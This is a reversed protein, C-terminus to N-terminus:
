RLGALYEALSAIDEDSAARMLATMGPNNTREGNRIETMTKELYERTQGALRPNTSEGLSNAQHCSTCALAVNARAAKALVVGSAAPQPNWPWPKKAYYEALALLDARDLAEVVAKMPENVRAGKAYDRLQLYTYGTHQGWLIPITKDEPVGKEGHCGDCLQVKEDFTQSVATQTLAALLCCTLAAAKLTLNRVLTRQRSFRLWDPETGEYRAILM